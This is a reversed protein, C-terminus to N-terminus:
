LIVAAALRPTGEGDEADPSNAPCLWWDRQPPTSRLRNRYARGFSRSGLRRRRGPSGSTRRLRLARLPHDERQTPAPRLRRRWQTGVTHGQAADLTPRPRREVRSATVFSSVARSCRDCRAEGVGSGFGLLPAEEVRRAPGFGRERRRLWGTPPGRGFSHAGALAGEPLPHAVPGASASV